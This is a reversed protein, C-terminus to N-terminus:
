VNRGNALEVLTFESDEVIFELGVKSRIQSATTISRNLTQFIHNLEVFAIAFPFHRVEPLINKELRLLLTREACFFIEIRQGQILFETAGLADVENHILEFEVREDGGRRARGPKSIQDVAIM